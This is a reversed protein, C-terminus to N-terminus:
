IDNSICLVNERIISGASYTKRVCFKKKKRSNFFYRFVLRIAKINIYM